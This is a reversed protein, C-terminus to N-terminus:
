TCTNLVAINKKLNDDRPLQCRNVGGGGESRGERSWQRAHNQVTVHIFRFCDIAFGELPMEKSNKM